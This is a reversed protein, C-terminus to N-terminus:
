RGHRRLAAESVAALNEAIVGYVRSSVLLSLHGSAGVSINCAEAWLAHEAPIVLADDPSAIAIADAGAPLAAAGLARLLGSGPRADRRYPGIRLWPMARTGGHPTGLTVLLRVRAHRGERRLLVRSALGGLGHAVVVVGARDADDRTHELHIALRDAAADLDTWWVGLRPVSVAWGDRRLRRALLWLSAPSSALGHVLVVARRGGPQAGPVGFPWLLVVLLSLASERAISRLIGVYGPVADDDPSTHRARATRYAAVHLAIQAAITVSASVGGVALLAHLAAAV